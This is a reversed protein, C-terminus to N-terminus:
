WSLYFSHHVKLIHRMQVGSAIREIYKHAFLLKTDPMKEQITWFMIVNIMLCIRPVTLGLSKRSSNILQYYLHICNCHKYNM